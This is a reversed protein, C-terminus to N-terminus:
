TATPTGGIIGAAEWQTLAEQSAGLYTTLIEETHEGITPPGLSYSVISESFKLPNAVIPTWGKQPHVVRAELGRSAVQEDAFVDAMNNIPGCPVGADRLLALCQNLSLGAFKEEFLPILVDRHAVREHNDRFRPDATLAGLDLARCLNFFQANNNVAVVLSGDQCAFPQYPCSLASVAGSPKAVHGSALYSAPVITMAAVQCDMLAVDIHQGKVNGKLRDILATTIGVIAYLGATVDSIPHGVRQPGGGPLGEVGGTGAMVGSMAQFVLDYGPLDRYPGTQGFGTISCYILDPNVKSLSEYDLQYKKLSGAKFNEVLVDCHRVLERIIAQGEPKSFDLALSRKGRNVASFGSSDVGNCGEPLAPKTGHLRAEDGEVPREVKIIDAGFDALTQTVYPGALVRSLDLVKIGALPGPRSM